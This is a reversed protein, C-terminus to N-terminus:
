LLKEYIDLLVNVSCNIDYGAKRFLYDKANNRNINKYDTLQKSWTIINTLKLVKIDEIIFAEKPVADSVVCPLGAAQAEILAIGLGEYISPFVFVDMAQLYDNVNEVNNVFYVFGNLGLQKVQNIIEDRLVGDGLLLLVSDKNNKFVESFIKVLFKHNKPYSFSGVHGIVFKEEIDLKKRMEKRIAQNFTYKDIDIANKLLMYNNKGLVKKGFLWKGAEDSCALLYDAIYRIPLQMIYKISRELLNGRSATSHSHAITRLGYAKAISLYISSTSRMHGHIIKYEPHANFFREWQKKYYFHNKGNYRSITYIRGGLKAIEEDFDCKDETHKVFDFQVKTRDINRYLNMVFTEAGGRDLRGLVHLIRIVRGM